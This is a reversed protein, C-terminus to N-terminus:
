GFVSTTPKHTTTSWYAVVEDHLRQLNAANLEHQVPITSIARKPTGAHVARAFVRKTPEHVGLIYTPAPIQLLHEIDDRDTSIKLRRSRPTIPTSTSKAQGFFYLRRNSTSTLEVYFDIAPWKDGLFGPRFLPYAFSSYDTLCLEVIREGRFGTVDRLQRIM